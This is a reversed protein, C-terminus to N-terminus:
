KNYFNKSSKVYDHIFFKIMVILFHFSDDFFHFLLCIILFNITRFLNLISKIIIRLPREYCLLKHEKKLRINRFYVIINYKIKAEVFKM